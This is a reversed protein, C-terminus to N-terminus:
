VKIDVGITTIHYVDVEFYWVVNNIILQEDKFQLNTIETGFVVSTLWNVM